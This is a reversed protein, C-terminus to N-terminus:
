TSKEKIKRAERLARSETHGEELAKKYAAQFEKDKEELKTM